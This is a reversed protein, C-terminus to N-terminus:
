SFKVVFADTGGQDGQVRNVTVPFNISDTYGTVYAKGGGNAAIAFGFEGSAGGLYTSYSVPGASSLRTVFADDNVDGPDVQFAASTTPFDTSDTDGTLWANGNKDVAIGRGTDDGAGGLYGSFLLGGTPSLKTTFADQGPADSPAGATIPFDTSTTPGTVWANGSADTAIGYGVDFNGGGLYGSFLLVGTPSLKTTFVDRAGADGPAGATTPFDTSDTYGTVWANGSKDTAVDYGLEESGGGLYGSFLLVGTPSLKTTFADIGGADGPAGATTPFDASFTEGTVWANGSKDTAIGQGLDADGGGLYGSFLLDGSSSLKTMFADFSPADVPAGATTPFDTSATYGTVWANGSRDTAIANGIDFDGGGLYTSVLLTTGSPNIEAVFVDTGPRDAQTAETLPFDVSSTGGVVWANGSGDVAVGHGVDSGGGGLYTSYSVRPDIVLRRSRDYPGVAFRVDRSGARVYSGTVDRRESGILQYVRPAHQVMDGRKTALFLDNRRDIRLSKAGSWSIRIRSPDAGPAVVFDYELDSAAGYFVLDIGPYLDRYAVKSFAHIGKHWKTRDSGVLYNTVGPLRNQGVITASTSSDPFRMRLVGGHKLAFVAETRTFFVTSGATRAIFRVSGDTQGANAEFRVPLKGFAPKVPTHDAAVARLIAPARPISLGSGMVALVAVMAVFARRAPETPFAPLALM